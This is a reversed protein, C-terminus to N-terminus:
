PEYYFSTQVWNPIVATDGNHLRRLVELTVIYTCKILGAPLMVAPNHLHNVGSSNTNGSLPIAANSTAPKSAADNLNQNYVGNNSHVNISVNAIHPHYATFAVHPSGSLPTCATSSLHEAMAVKMYTINNNLVITNLTTGSGPMPNFLNAAKNIVERIEFRIAKQEIAIRNAPPVREGPNGVGSPVNPQTTLATTNIAMLADGDVWVFDPIDAPSLLPDAAFTRTISTNIDLWGESDLDAQEAYIDVIRYPSYRVMQGIQTKAFLPVNAGVGVIRSFDTDAPPATGNPTTVDSVLFRYEVSNGSSTLRPASGLLRITGHFAYKATGAYGDTDFDNLVAADPITFQTGVKTWVSPINPDPPVPVEVCLNVCFCPGRDGRGAARGRMPPEDLLVNGEADEIKFYVDPGGFLEVDIWTGQRFNAGPYDIRFVGMANTVGTGLFDPQVIDVDRATVTLAGLGVTPKDCPTVRGVIVWLDAKRRIRCWIGAPIVAILYWRDGFKFPKYTGLFLCLPRELEVSGQELTPAPIRRICAFLDILQGQYDPDFLCFAGRDDTTARMISSPAILNQLGAEEIEEVVAKLSSQNPRALSDTIAEQRESTRAYIEAGGIADWVLFNPCIAGYLYGYITCRENIIESM